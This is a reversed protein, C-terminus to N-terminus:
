KRVHIYLFPCILTYSILLYISFYSFLKKRCLHINMLHPNIHQKDKVMKMIKENMSKLGKKLHHAFSAPIIGEAKTGEFGVALTALLRLDM